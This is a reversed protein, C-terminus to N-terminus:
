VVVARVEWFKGEGLFARKITVFVQKPGNTDPDLPPHFCWILRIETKGYINVLETIIISWVRHDRRKFSTIFCKLRLTARTTQFLLRSFSIKSSRRSRVSSRPLRSSWTTSRSRRSSGPDAGPKSSPQFAFPLLSSSFLSGVLITNQDRGLVLLSFSFLTEHEHHWM